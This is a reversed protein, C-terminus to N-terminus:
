TKTYIYNGCDWIRDYGQDQMNEYESRSADVNPIKHKQFKTRSHLTNHDYKHFYFYNPASEGILQFGASTYSGGSGYRKDAYTICNCVNMKDFIKTVGGQVHVGKKITMRILEWDYQKSYRPVGISASLVLEGNHYLGYYKQAPITGQLHNDIEFQKIDSYEIQKFITKRAPIKTFTKGLKHAIISKVIDQKTKWENEFVTILNYGQSICLEQKKKHYNRDKNGWTESHYYIGCYEIAMNKEPVVIDLEFPSIIKRDNQLIDFGLSKVFDALELQGVSSKAFRAEVEHM